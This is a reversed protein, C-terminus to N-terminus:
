DDRGAKIRPTLTLDFDQRCDLMLEGIRRAYETRRSSHDKAEKLNQKHGLPDDAAWADLALGQYRKYEDAHHQLQNLLNTLITSPSAIM